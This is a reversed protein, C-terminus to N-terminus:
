RLWGPLAGERRARDEFRAQEDQLQQRLTAIRREYSGIAPDAPSRLGPRRRQEAIKSELADISHQLQALRRREHEAERRWEREGAPVGSRPSRLEAAFAAPESNVGTEDRGARIRELDANTYTPVSPKDDAALAAPGVGLCFVVTRAIRM